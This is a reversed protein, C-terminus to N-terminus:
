NGYEQENNTPKAKEILEISKLDGYIHLEFTSMTGDKKEKYFRYDIDGNTDVYASRIFGIIEEAHPQHTRHSVIKVKDKEGFECHEDLLGQKYSQLKKELREIQAKTSLIEDKYEEKTM